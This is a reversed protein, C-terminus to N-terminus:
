APLKEMEKGAARLEAGSSPRSIRSSDVSLVASGRVRTSASASSFVGATNPM